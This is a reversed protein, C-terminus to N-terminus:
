ALGALKVLAQLNPTSGASGTVTGLSSGFVTSTGYKALAGPWKATLVGGSPFTGTSVVITPVSTYGSGHNTITTATFVGGVCTFTGTAGSGGGGSTAWTGSVGGSSGPNSITLAAGIGSGKIVQGWTFTAQGVNVSVSYGQEILPICNAAVTLSVGTQGCVGLVSANAYYNNGGPAIGYDASEFVDGLRTTTYNGISTNYNNSWFRGAIGGPQRFTAGSGVPNSGTVRFIPLAGANSFLAVMDGDLHTGGFSYNWETINFVAVPASAGQQSPVINTGDSYLNRIEFGSMWGIDACARRYRATSTNTQAGSGYSGSFFDIASASLNRTKNADTYVGASYVGDDQFIGYGIFETFLHKIQTLTMLDTTGGSEGYIAYTTGGIYTEGEFVCGQISANKHCALGAFATGAMLDFFQLDGYLSSSPQNWYFDYKNYSARPSEFRTHDGVIDWGVNFYAIEVNRTRLRAGWAFGSMAVPGQDIYTALSGNSSLLQLDNLDGHYMAGSAYRGLSNAFTAAPDGCSVLYTGTGWDSGAVLYTNQRGDGELFFNPGTNPSAEYTEPLMLPLPIVTGIKYRGAPIRQKVGSLAAAQLALWAIDINTVSSNTLGYAGGVRTFISNSTIWSFPTAGNIQVAALGALTTVGYFISGSPAGGVRHANGDGIPIGGAYQLVNKLLTTQDITGASGAGPGSFEAKASISAAVAGAAAGLLLRRDM